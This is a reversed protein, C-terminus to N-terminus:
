MDCILPRWEPRIVRLTANATDDNIDWNILRNKLLEAAFEKAAEQEVFQWHTHIEPGMHVSRLTIFESQVTKIKILENVSAQSATAIKKMEEYQKIMVDKMEEYEDFTYGGLKNILWNKLKNKM